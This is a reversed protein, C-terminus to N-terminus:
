RALQETEDEYKDEGDSRAAIESMYPSEIVRFLERYAEDEGVLIGRLKSRWKSFKAHDGTYPDLTRFAPNGMVNRGSQPAADPSYGGTPEADIVTKELDRM